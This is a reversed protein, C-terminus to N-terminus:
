KSKKKRTKPFPLEEYMSSLLTKLFETDEVNEVLIMDKAGDYPKEFVADPMLKVASDVPKVLFRDDYMGGIVKGRYYIVFEGMMARSTVENEIGGLQGVIYELYEKSSSM